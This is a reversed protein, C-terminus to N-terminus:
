AVALVLLAVDDRDLAYEVVEKVVRDAVADAVLSAAAAGTRGRLGAATGALVEALRDDGFQEGNRRAETVGDTYALLVDGPALDVVTESVSVDHLLGIATGPRGVAFVTGDARRVFPAPHGGLSITLRVGTVAGPAPAATIRGYVVTCFREVDEGLELAANLQELVQQPRWGQASLARVTYRAMSTVIAAEVGKGSVDGLVFAWEGDTAPHVDYFDGSVESDLGAPLSRAALRLGPVDPLRSPRLSAELTEALRTRQDLLAKLERESRVQQTVDRLVALRGTEAGARDFLSTLILSVDTEVGGLDSLVVDERTTTGPIHRDLAPAVAPVLDALPRGVVRSRRDGLLVATAPNADVVRGYADLVVVGDTMQEVVVNRAVPVLDLLRLRFFGWFLVFATVVFAFPTPDVTGVFGVELNYLLNVVLPLGCAAILAYAQRRYPRGIRVLRRSLVLVCTAVGIYTYAAHPWFLVGPVPIPREALAGSAGLDSTGYYHLLDHTAPVALVTLVIAPEICLLLLGRRGLRRRGTYEDVFWALGPLVAVIGVYKLGSWAKNAEVTRSVLEMAYCTTWVFVALSMTVLGHGGAARRHRWVYWALALYGAAGVGFAVGLAISVSM